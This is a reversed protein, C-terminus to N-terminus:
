ELTINETLISEIGIVKSFTQRGGSKNNINFTMGEVLSERIIWKTLNFEFYFLIRSGNHRRVNILFLIAM